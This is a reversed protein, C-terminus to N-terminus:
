NPTVQKLLERAEEHKGEAMLKKYLEWRDFNVNNVREVVKRQAKDYNFQEYLYNPRSGSANM